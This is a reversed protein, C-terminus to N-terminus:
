KVGVYVTCTVCLKNPLWRAQFRSKSKLITTTSQKTRQQGAGDGIWFKGEILLPVELSRAILPTQLAGPNNWVLWCSTSPSIYGKQSLETSWPFAVFSMTISIALWLLRAVIGSVSKYCKVPLFSTIRFGWYRRCQAYDILRPEDEHSVVLPLSREMILLGPIRGVTHLDTRLGTPSKSM